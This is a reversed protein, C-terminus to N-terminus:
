GNGPSALRQALAEYLAQEPGKTQAALRQVILEPTSRALRGMVPQRDVVLRHEADLGKAEIGDVRVSGQPLHGLIAQPVHSVIIGLSETLLLREVFFALIKGAAELETVSEVEDALVLRRADGTSAPMFSRLFTEFAGADLGRRATVFHIEDVWPVVVDQGVVPLGMHAMLVTQCIHELLTSKGGSNAGTLLAVRADGGLHYEIRQAEPNAALDLHVADSFRLTKGSSWPQLDNHRAFSGLAFDADWELWHGVEAAAAEQHRAIARAALRQAKELRGRGEAGIRKEAREIEEEDLSLPLHTHFPQLDLGTEEKLHLRAGRIADDLAAKVPKPLPGGGMISLLDTGTLSLKSLTESIQGQATEYVGEIAKRLGKADVTPVQLSDVTELIEGAVSTRGMLDALKQCSLLIARNQQAWAILAVPALDCLPANSAIEEVADLDPVDMGEDYAIVVWDMDGAMALDRAGGLISWKGVGLGHLREFVAENEAVVLRTTDCRPPPTQLPRLDRLGRRVADLDVDALSAKLGLVHSVRQQAAQADALPQLLRLRNRGHRTGAHRQLAELLREHIARAAPTALLQDGATDGRVARVLEVARRESIGEVETLAQLDAGQAAAFFGADDGFARRIASALGPGVGPLTELSPM